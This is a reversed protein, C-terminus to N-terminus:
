RRSRSGRSTREVLFATAGSDTAAVVLLVDARQAFSIWRKTGTLAYGGNTRAAITAPHAADSGVMPETLAFAAIWEGSALRPLWQERQRSSGARHIAQAVMGQVTLLSRVSSCAHNIEENLLGFAIQDLDTGGYESPLWPTLFGRAAIARILDDPVREDADVEIAVPQINATVFERFERRREEFEQTSDIM